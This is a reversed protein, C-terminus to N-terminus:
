VCRSTYLLCAGLQRVPGEGVLARRDVAEVEDALVVGLEQPQRQRVDEALHEERDRHVAAARGGDVASQVLDDVVQGHDLGGPHARRRADELLGAALHHAGELSDRICM